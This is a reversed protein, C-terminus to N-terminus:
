ILSLLLLTCIRQGLDLLWLSEIKRPCRLSLSFQGQSQILRLQWCNQVAKGRIRLTRSGGGSMIGKSLDSSALRNTAM